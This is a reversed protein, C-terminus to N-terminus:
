PNVELADIQAALADANDLTFWCMGGDRSNRPSYFAVRGMGFGGSDVAGCRDCILMTVEPQVKVSM